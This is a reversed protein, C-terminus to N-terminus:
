SAFYYLDIIDDYSYGCKNFNYILESEKINKKMLKSLELYEQKMSDPLELYNDRLLMKKSQTKSSKFISCAADNRIFYFCNDEYNFLFMIEKPMYRDNYQTSYDAIIENDRYIQIDMNKDPFGPKERYSVLYQEDLNNKITYTITEDTTNNCANLFLCILSIIVIKIKNKM